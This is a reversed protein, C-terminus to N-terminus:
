NTTRWKAMAQKYKRGTNKALTNTLTKVLEKAEM